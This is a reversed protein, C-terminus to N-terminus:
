RSHQRSARTRQAADASGECATSPTPHGQPSEERRHRRAHRRCDPRRSVTASADVGDGRRCTMALADVCVRAKSKAAVGRRRRRSRRWATPSLCVRDRRASTRRHRVPTSIRHLVRDTGALVGDVRRLVIFSALPVPRFLLAPVGDGRGRSCAM